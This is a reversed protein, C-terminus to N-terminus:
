FLQIFQLRDLPYKMLPSKCFIADVVFITVEVNVELSEWLNVHQKNMQNSKDYTRSNQIVSVIVSFLEHVMQELRRYISDATCRQQTGVVVNGM